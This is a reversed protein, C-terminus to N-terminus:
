VAVDAIGGLQLRDIPRASERGEAEQPLECERKGATPEFVIRTRVRSDTAPQRCRETVAQLAAASAFM